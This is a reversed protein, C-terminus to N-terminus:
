SSDTAQKTGPCPSVAKEKSWLYVEEPNKLVSKPFCVIQRSSNREEDKVATIPVLYRRVQQAIIYYAFKRKLKGKGEEEYVNDPNRTEQM